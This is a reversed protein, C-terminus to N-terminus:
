ELTRVRDELLAVLPALRRQLLRAVREEGGSVPLRRALGLREEGVGEPVVAAAVEDFGM